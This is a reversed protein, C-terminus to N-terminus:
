LDADILKKFRKRVHEIYAKRTKNYILVDDFYAQVFDILYEFLVDNIYHQYSVSENILNFFLIHYKYIKLFTVFIILNKSNSYMLLKYFAAIINLKTLYKYNMIRVLIKKMFSILYYNRKIIVNFNHYNVCFCLEKNLKVAFLISSVSFVFNLRIFRKKLNEKLYKKTIILIHILMQYVRNKSM